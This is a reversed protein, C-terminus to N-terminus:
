ETLEKGTLQLFVDELTGRGVRLETVPIGRDRLMSTIEVLLAPPDTTELVYVGDLSRADDASPLSRLASLELPSATRLRVMRDGGVLADPSDLAVLRGADMIAVRDALREAEELYHTTLVITAGEDHLGRIIDWTSRRAQPDMGATPEDLFLLEPRPLLALALMLRQKQGGSLRRYRTTAAERLGVLELLERIDRPHPYFRAFLALAEPPTIAPYLGGEQLMVGIRRKMQEGQLVPDLGLVRVLGGDPRRYGELIEVTTTKGAGNPGLLALTEGHRVDLSLHNVALRDGYTKVLDRVTVAAEPFSM